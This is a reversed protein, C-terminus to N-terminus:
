LTPLKEGPQPKASGGFGILDIAYVRCNQALVPINKALAVLFRWIWARPCCGAWHNRPNSLLYPFRALGLNKYLYISNKFKLNDYSIQHICPYFGTLLLAYTFNNQIQIFNILNEFLIRQDLSLKSM